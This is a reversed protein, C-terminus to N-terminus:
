VSKATDVQYPRHKALWENTVSEVTVEPGLDGFVKEMGARRLLDRVTGTLNSVKMMIGRAGLAEHVERLMNAASLDMYPSSSLDFVVLRHEQSTRSAESTQADAKLGEVRAPRDKRPPVLRDLLAKPHCHRHPAPTHYQNTRVVGPFAKVSSSM